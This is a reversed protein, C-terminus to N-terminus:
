ITFNKVGFLLFNYYDKEYLIVYELLVGDNKWFFKVYDYKYVFKKWHYFYDKGKQM